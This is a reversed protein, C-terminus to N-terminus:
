CYGFTNNLIILYMICKTTICKCVTKAIYRFALSSLENHTKLNM